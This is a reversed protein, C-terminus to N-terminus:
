PNLSNNTSLCSYLTIDHCLTAGSCQSDAWSVASTVQTGNDCSGSPYAFTVQRKYIGDLYNGTSCNGSVWQSSANLCYTTTYTKFTTYNQDRLTRAQELGQKAYAAATTQAKAFSTDNLANIVLFAVVSVTVTAASLALLAEVLAQGKELKKIM